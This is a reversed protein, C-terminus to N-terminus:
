RRDGDIYSVEVPGVLLLYVPRGPSIDV